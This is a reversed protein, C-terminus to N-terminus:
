KMLMIRQIKQNKGAKLKCLYFGNALYNGKSNKGDWSVSGKHSGRSILSRVLKGSLDYISLSLKTNEPVSYQIMTHSNFPNPAASISFRDAKKNQIGHIDTTFFEIVLQNNIYRNLRITGKKNLTMGSSYWASYSYDIFPSLPVDMFTTKGNADTYKVLYPDWTRDPASTRSTELYMPCIYPERGGSISVSVSEVPQSNLTVLVELGALAPETDPILQFHVKPDPVELDPIANICITQPHFGQKVASVNYNVNARPLELSFQGWQDSVTSCPDLHLYDINPYYCGPERDARIRADQVPYFVGTPLNPDTMRMVTGSLIVPDTVNISGVKITDEIYVSYTGAALLGLNYQPGHQITDVCNICNMCVAPGESYSFKIDTGNILIQTNYTPFCNSIIEGLVLKAQVPRTTVPASPTVELKPLINIDTLHNYQTVSSSDVGLSQGQPGNIRHYITFTKAQVVTYAGAKKFIVPRYDLYIPTRLTDRTHIILSDNRVTISDTKAMFMSSDLDSLSIYISTLVTPMGRIDPEQANTYFTINPTPPWAIVSSAGGAQMAAICLIIILYSYNKM